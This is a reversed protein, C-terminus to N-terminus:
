KEEFYKADKGCKEEDKRAISCFDHEIEANYFKGDVQSIGAKRKLFAFRKCTSFKYGDLLLLIPNEIICNACNKCLKLM